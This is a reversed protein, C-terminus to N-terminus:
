MWKSISTAQGYDGERGGRAKPWLGIGETESREVDGRSLPLRGGSLSLRGGSGRKRSLKTRCGPAFTGARPPSQCRTRRGGTAVTRCFWLATQAVRKSAGGRTSGRSASSTSHQVGTPRPMGSAGGTPAPGSGSPTNARRTRREVTPSPSAGARRTQAAGKSKPSTEGGRRRTAKQAILFGGFFRRPVAGALM